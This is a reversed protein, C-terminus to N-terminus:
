GGRGEGCVCHDNARRDVMCNDRFVAFGSYFVDCGGFLQTDMEFLQADSVKPAVDAVQGTTRQLERDM